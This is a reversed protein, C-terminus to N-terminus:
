KPLENYIVDVLVNGVIQIIYPDIIEMNDSLKHHWPNYNGEFKNYHVIDICPIRAYTNIYLHDDTTRGVVDNIFVAGYGLRGAASWVKEVVSAAYYMGTGERPFTAGRGAVMDLLIGFRATYNQPMHQTWYQTGICWGEPAGNDLGGDEADSFLLDIGINPDQTQLIRGIELLLGAGSAGDNAGDFPKKSLAPDKEHDAFARTDWHALLLIREKREPHYSAFINTIEILRQDIPTTGSTKQTTVTLNYSKLKQIFYDACNKHAKTDPIRPGFAVQTKINNFASDTNFLPGKIRAIIPDPKSTGDDQKVTTDPNCSFLIALSFSFFYKKM